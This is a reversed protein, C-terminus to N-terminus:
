CAPVRKSAALIAEAVTAGSGSVEVVEGRRKAKHYNCRHLVVYGHEEPANLFDVVALRWGSPPDPLTM